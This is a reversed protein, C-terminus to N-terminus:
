KKYYVIKYGIKKMLPYFKKEISLVQDKTLIHEWQKLAGKRFFKKGVAEPFGFEVENKKLLNFDTSKIINDIKKDLNDFQFSYNKQFFNVLKEITKLKNSIMDEYKILLFPCKFPNDIWSECNFGWSSLITFPKKKNLFKKQNDEWDVASKTSLIKIISKEISSNFHHAYSLVVDRPDRVVYIIGRTCSDSTFSHNFAKSLAHHTKVFLFDSNFGLNERSQIAKWYKSLIELKHINIYDKPNNKKIFDLNITSEIIPINKLLKFNFLGDNTFFISSLISRLLTNGSKPYSAIWFIQKNM